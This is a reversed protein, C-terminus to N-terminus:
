SRLVTPPIALKIEQLTFGSGIVIETQYFGWSTLAVNM